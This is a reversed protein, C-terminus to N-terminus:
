TLKEESSPQTVASVDLYIIIFRCCIAKELKEYVESTTVEQLDANDETLLVIDDAFDNLQHDNEHRNVNILKIVKTKLGGFIVSLAFLLFMLVNISLLLLM